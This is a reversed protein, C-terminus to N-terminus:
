RRKPKRPRGTGGRADHEQRASRGRASRAGTGRQDEDSPDALEFRLSGTVSDAEVLRVTVSSGLRFTRGTRSGVLAHHREDHEFFEDGLTRIPVLGNAGTEDLSVFLGFRTVGSVRGLFTAGRRSELYAALYRDLAEREAAMARREAGSIREGVDPFTEAADDPLGDRPARRGPESIGLGLGRILGRHVLLDAYRRIPSTFHAYRALHLGFHGLNDPSYVAQSQSRLVVENVLHAHPTTAARKLLANIHRPRIAPGRVLHLDLTQLFERLAGLKEDDPRDHIRYMCPVKRTELTEAAAVNAAIMCEEILRHSDYRAQPRISEIHGDDGLVVRTEPLDLDLPERRARERKLAGYAGYLNRIVPMYEPAVTGSAGDTDYAAQVAEYTLNGIGRMLGRVFSHRLKTGDADIWLTVAIVAREVGARLSCLDASLAEPLMPVVRDPFYVSNGRDLAARDLASGPTVYAAVDAIAVVIRWGGPNAPDPDPEAWVADDHDRADAPDITILPLDRLDTRGEPTPETAAEAEALAAPPFTTPIGRSRIAILSFTRPDNFSGIRERVRARPLGLTRGPTTEALVVDGPAAGQSDPGSVAYEDRARRDTPVIRGSGAVLRFVGVIQDPSTAIRRMIRAEYLGPEIEALRALARDGIGLASLANGGDRGPPLVLIRPPPAEERWDIPRAYLEGDIDTEAIEIPAVPPLRGAAHLTRRHGRAILGDDGLERLLRKLRIRDAGVIGFARAIERKGVKKDSEAIFRLVEERSPFSKTGPTERPSKRRSAGPPRRAM